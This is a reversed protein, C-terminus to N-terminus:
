SGIIHVLGQITIYQPTFLKYPKWQLFFNKTIYMQVQLGRTSM